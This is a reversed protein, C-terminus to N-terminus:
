PRLRGSHAEASSGIRPHGLRGQLAGDEAHWAGKGAPTGAGPDRAPKAQRLEPGQPPLAGAGVCGPGGPRWARPATGPRCQERGPGTTLPDHTQQAGAQVQQPSHSGSAPAEEQTLLFAWM